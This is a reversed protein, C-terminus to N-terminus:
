TWALRRAEPLSLSPVPPRKWSRKRRERSESLIELQFTLFLFHIFFRFCTVRQRARRLSCSSSSSSHPRASPRPRCGPSPGPGVCPEPLPMPSPGPSPCVAVRRGLRAGHAPEEGPRVHLLLAPDSPRRQSSSFGSQPPRVPGSSPPAERTGLVTRRREVHRPSGRVTKAGADTEKSVSM